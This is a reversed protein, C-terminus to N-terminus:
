EFRAKPIDGQKSQLYITYPLVVTDAIGSLAMDFIMLSAGPYGDFGVSRRPEADLACYNLAAGSYIRPISDCHSQWRALKNSSIM